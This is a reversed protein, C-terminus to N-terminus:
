PSSECPSSHHVRPGRVLFYTEHSVSKYRQQVCCFLNENNDKQERKKKKKGEQLFHKMERGGFEVFSTHSLSLFFFTILSDLSCYLPKFWNQYKSIYSDFGRKRSGFFSPSFPLLFFLQRETIEKQHFNETFCFV